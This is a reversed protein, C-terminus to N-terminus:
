YVFGIGIGLREGEQNSERYEIKAVVRPSVYWNAGAAWASGGLGTADRSESPHAYETHAFAILKRSSLAIQRGIDYGLTISAGQANKAISTKSAIRVSEIDSIWGKSAIAIGEWGNDMRVAAHAEIIKADGSSGRLPTMVGSAGILVNEINGYDLRAVWGLKGSDSLHSEKGERIWSNHQLLTADMGSMAGFTLAYEDYRRTVLAASEHWEAPIILHEVRSPEITLFYIPEHYLNYLGVPMHVKGFAFDTDRNIAADLSLVELEAEFLGGDEAPHAFGIVTHVTLHDSLHVIPEFSLDGVGESKNDAKSFFFGEGYGEVTILSESGFALVAMISLSILIKLNM